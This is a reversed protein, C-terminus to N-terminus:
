SFSPAHAARGDSGMGRPGAHKLDTAKGRHWAWTEGMAIETM